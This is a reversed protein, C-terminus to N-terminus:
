VLQSRRPLRVTCQNQMTANSHPPPPRAPTHLFCQALHTRCRYPSAEHLCLSGDDSASVEVRMAAPGAESQPQPGIRQRSREAPATGAAVASSKCRKTHPEGAQEPRGHDTQTTHAEQPMASVPQRGLEAMAEHKDAAVTRDVGGAALPKHAAVSAALEGLAETLFHALRGDGAGVELVRIAGSCAQLFAARQRSLFLFDCTLALPM